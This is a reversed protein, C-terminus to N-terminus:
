RRAHGDMASRTITALVLESLRACVSHAAEPFERRM